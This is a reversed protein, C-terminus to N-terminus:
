VCQGRLDYVLVTGQKGGGLKKNELGRFLPLLPLIGNNGLLAVHRQEM